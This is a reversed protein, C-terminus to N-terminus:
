EHSKGTLLHITVIKYDVGKLATRDRRHDAYYRESGERRAAIIFRQAEQGLGPTLVSHHGEGAASHGLQLLAEGVQHIRGRRGGFADVYEGRFETDPDATFNPGTPTVIIAQERDLNFGGAKFGRAFSGYM